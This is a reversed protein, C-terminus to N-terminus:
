RRAPGSGPGSYCQGCRGWGTTPRAALFARVDDRHWVPREVREQAPLEDRDVLSAPNVRLKRRKVAGALATHLVALAQQITRPSLGRGVLAALV